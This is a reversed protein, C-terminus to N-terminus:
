WCKFFIAKIGSKFCTKAYGLHQITKVVARKQAPCSSVLYPLKFYGYWGASKLGTSSIGGSSPTRAMLNEKEIITLSVPFVLFSRFHGKEQQNFYNDVQSPLTHIYFYNNLLPSLPM